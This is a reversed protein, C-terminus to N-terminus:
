LEPPFSEGEQGPAPLSFHSQVILWQDGRQELVATLRGPLTMEQGEAKVEFTM